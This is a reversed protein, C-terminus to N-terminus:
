AETRYILSIWIPKRACMVIADRITDFYWTNKNHMDNDNLADTKLKQYLNEKIVDKMCTSCICYMPWRQSFIYYFHIVVENAMKKSKKGTKRMEGNKWQLHCRSCYLVVSVGTQPNQHVSFPKLAMFVQTRTLSLYISYLLECCAEGSHSHLAM